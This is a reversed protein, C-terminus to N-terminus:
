KPYPVGLNQCAPWYYLARCTQNKDHLLLNKPRRASFNLRASVVEPPLRPGGLVLPLRTGLTKASVVRGRFRLSQPRFHAKPRWLKTSKAPPFIAEFFGLFLPEIRMQLLSALSKNISRQDFFVIWSANSFLLAEFSVLSTCLESFTLM